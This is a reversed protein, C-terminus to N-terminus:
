YTKSFVLHINDYHTFTLHFPSYQSVQLFLYVLHINNIKSFSVLTQVGLLLMETSYTKIKTNTHSKLLTLQRIYKLTENSRYRANNENLANFNDKRKRHLDSVIDNVTKICYSAFLNVRRYDKCFNWSVSM